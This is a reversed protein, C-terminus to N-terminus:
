KGMSSNSIQYEFWVRYLGVPLVQRDLFYPTAGMLSQQVFRPKRGDPLIVAHALGGEGLYWVM